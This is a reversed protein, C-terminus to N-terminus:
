FYFTEEAYLNAPRLWFPVMGPCCEVKSQERFGVFRVVVRLRKCVCLCVFVSVRMCLLGLPLYRQLRQVPSVFRLLENVLHEKGATEGLTALLEPRDLLALLAPSRPQM